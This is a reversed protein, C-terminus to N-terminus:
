IHSGGVMTHSPPCDSASLPEMLVPGKRKMLDRGGDGTDACAWQVQLRELKEMFVDCLLLFEEVDQAPFQDSAQADRLQLVANQLLVHIAQAMDRGFNAGFNWEGGDDPEHMGINHLTKCVLGCQSLDGGQLSHEFLDMLRHTVDDVLLADCISSDGAALNLLVGCVGFTIERNSHDLLLALVPVMDQGAIWDRILPMTSLNGLLRTAELVCEERVGANASDGPHMVLLSALPGTCKLTAESSISLEESYCTLNTLAAIGNLTVELSAAAMQMGSMSNETMGMLATTHHTLHRDILAPISNVADSQSALAKGLEANITLNAVLRLMKVLCDVHEAWESAKAKAPDLGEDRAGYHVLAASVSDIAGPTDALAQRCRDNTVTLNGLTFCTRVVLAPSTRHRRLLAAMAGLAALGPAAEAKLLAKRCEENLSLKSLIRVVNVMLERQDAHTDLLRALHGVAGSEVFVRLRENQMALNRLCGTVQILVQSHFDPAAAVGEALPRRPLEPSALLKTLRATAEQKALVDQVAKGGTVNKLCGSAYVCADQAIRNGGVHGVLGELMKLLGELVAPDDAFADDNRQDKSEQYLARVVSLTAESCAGGGGGNKGELGIFIRAARLRVRTAVGGQECVLDFLRRLLEAKLPTSARKHIDGDGAGLVVIVHGLADMEGEEEMARTSRALMSLSEAMETAWAEYVEDDEEEDEDEEREEGRGGMRGGKVKAGGNKQVSTNKEPMGAMTEAIRDTVRAYEALKADDMPPTEGANVERAEMLSLADMFKDPVKGMGAQSSEKRRGGEKASGTRRERPVPTTRGGIRTEMGSELDLREVEAASSSSPARPRPPAGGGVGMAGASPWPDEPISAPGPARGAGAGAGAGLGGGLASREGRASGPRAASRPRESRASRPRGDVTLADRPGGMRSAPREPFADVSGGFGFLQRGGESPTMPRTDARVSARAEALATALTGMGRPMMPDIAEDGSGRM